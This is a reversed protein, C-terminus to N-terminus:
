ICKLEHAKFSASGDHCVAHKVAGADQGGSAATWGASPMRLPLVSDVKTIQDMHQSVYCHATFVAQPFTFM